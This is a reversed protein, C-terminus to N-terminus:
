LWIRPKLKKFAFSVIYALIIISKCSEHALYGKLQENILKRHGAISM